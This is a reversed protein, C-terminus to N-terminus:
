NDQRKLPPDLELGDLVIVHITDVRQLGFDNTLFAECGQDLATAIQLADPTRLNHKARLQAAQEAIEASVSVLSIHRTHNLMLRYAQEIVKDKEKFPKHLAETLTIVSSIGRLEGKSMQQFINAVRDFYTPNAEVFYIFPATDIGLRSIGKLAEGTRV